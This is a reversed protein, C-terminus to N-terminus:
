KIGHNKKVKEIISSPSRNGAKILRIIEARYKSASSFLNLVAKYIKDILEQEVELNYEEEM